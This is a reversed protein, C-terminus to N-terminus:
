RENSDMREKERTRLSLDDRDLLLKILLVAPRRAGTMSVDRAFAHTSSGADDGLRIKKRAARSFFSFGLSHQKSEHDPSLLGGARLAPFARSEIQIHGM